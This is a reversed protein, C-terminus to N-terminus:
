ESPWTDEKLEGADVDLVMPKPQEKMLELITLLQLTKACPARKLSQTGGSTNLQLGGAVDSVGYAGWTPRLAEVAVKIVACNYDMLAVSSNRGTM